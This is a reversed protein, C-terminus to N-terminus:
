RAGRTIAQVTLLTARASAKRAEPTSPTVVSRGATM